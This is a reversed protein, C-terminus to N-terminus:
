CAVEACSGAQEEWAAMWTSAVAEAASSATNLTHV